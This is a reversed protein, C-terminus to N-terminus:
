EGLRHLINRAKHLALRSAPLKAIILGFELPQTALSVKQPAPPQGPGASEINL